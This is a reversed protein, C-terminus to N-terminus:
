NLDLHCLIHYQLVSNSRLICKKVIVGIHIFDPISNRITERMAPKLTVAREYDRKLKESVRKGYISGDTGGYSNKLFDRAYLNKDENQPDVSLSDDTLMDEDYIM